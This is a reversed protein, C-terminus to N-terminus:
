SDLTKQAQEIVKNQCAIVYLMNDIVANYTKVCNFNNGKQQQWALQAATKDRLKTAQNITKQLNSM